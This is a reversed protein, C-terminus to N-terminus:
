LRAAIHSSVLGAAAAASAATGNPNGTGSFHSQNIFHRRKKLQIPNRRAARLAVLRAKDVDMWRYNGKRSSTTLVPKALAGKPM